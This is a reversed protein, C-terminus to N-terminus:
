PPDLTAGPLSDIREETAQAAPMAPESLHAKCLRLYGRALISSIEEVVTDSPNEHLAM